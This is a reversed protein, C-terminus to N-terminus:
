RKSEFSEKKVAKEYTANKMGKEVGKDSKQKLTEKITISSMKPTEVKQTDQYRQLGVLALFNLQEPIFQLNIHDDLESVAESDECAASTKKKSRHAQRPPIQQPEPYTFQSDQRIKGNYNDLLDDCHM